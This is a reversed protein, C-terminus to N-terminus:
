RCICSCKGPDIAASKLKSKKDDDWYYDKDSGLDDEYDNNFDDDQSVSVLWIM